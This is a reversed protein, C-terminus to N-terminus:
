DKEIQYRHCGKIRSLIGDEIDYYLFCNDKYKHGDFIFSINKIMPLMGEFFLIADEWSVIIKYSETEYIYSLSYQGFCHKKMDNKSLPKIKNNKIYYYLSDFLSEKVFYQHTLHEKDSLSDRDNQSPYIEITIMPKDVMGDHTFKIQKQANISFTMLIFVLLAIAKINNKERRTPNTIRCVKTYPNTIGSTYLLRRSMM